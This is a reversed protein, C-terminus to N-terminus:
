AAFRAATFYLQVFNLPETPAIDGYIQYVDGADVIRVNRFGKIWGDAQAQRLRAVVRALVSGAAGSDSPRGLSTIADRCARVTSQMSEWSSVESRIPNDDTLYSTVSRQIYWGLADRGLIVLGSKILTNADQLPRWTQYAERIRPRNRTLPWAIPSGAQMCACVLALYPPDLTPATGNPHDVSIQDAVLSVYTSNLAAAAAQAQAMTKQGAMGVWCNREYGQLAADNCHQDLLAHVTADSSLVVVIQIDETLLSDLAAQWNTTGVPSSDTGGALNSAVDSSLDVPLGTSGREAEVLTMANIGQVLSYTDARAEFASSAVDVEGDTADADSADISGARPDSVAAVVGGIQGLEVIVNRVKRGATALVKGNSCGISANGVWAVDASSIDVETISGFSAVTSASATGTGLVVDESQPSGALDTGTITVTVDDTHAAGLGADLEVSIVGACPAHDWSATVANFALSYPGILRTWEYRVQASTWELVATTLVGGTYQISGLSAADLVLTDSLGDRSAVLTYEDGDKSAEVRVKNGVGGWVRSKVVVAQGGGSDALDLFAQTPDNASVLTLSAAGGPVDPDDSPNFALAGLLKLDADNQDFAAMGQADTFQTPTSLPLGPYDLVLAVNGTSTGVGGLASTDIKGVISPVYLRRGNVIISSPM